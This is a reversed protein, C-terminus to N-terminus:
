AVRIHSLSVQQPPFCLNKKTHTHFELQSICGATLSPVSMSSPSVPPAIGETKMLDEYIEGGDEDDYVCDYLDEEDDVGNESCRVCACVCAPILFFVCWDFSRKNLATDRILRVDAHRCCQLQTSFSKTTKM